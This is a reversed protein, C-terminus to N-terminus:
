IHGFIKRFLSFCHLFLYGCLLPDQQTHVAGDLRLTDKSVRLFVQIEAPKQQTPYPINGCFSKQDGDCMVNQFQVMFDLLITQSTM